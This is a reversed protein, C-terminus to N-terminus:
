GNNEDEGSSPAAATDLFWVLREQPQVHTMPLDPDRDKLVARVTKRKATGAVLVFTQRANNLVPLTCTLRQTVDHRPPASVARVWEPDNLSPHHEPFLSATHGDKGMGLLALDFTHARNAFASQLTNSYSTAAESPSGAVPMPHVNADPIPIDCLLTERVLRVNSQSHDHPVFREDAWFLHVQTWPLSEQTLREYLRRPTSGGSLAISCQDYEAVTNRILAATSRTANHCLQEYDPSIETIM